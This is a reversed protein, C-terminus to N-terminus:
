DQQLVHRYVALVAEINEEGSGGTPQRLAPRALVAEIMEALAAPNSSPILRVGPPRMGNDSAIVPAGLHLAERVSISDGDYLTTRLFVDCRRITELTVPHPMDGFLLVHAAYPRNDIQRRLDSEISGSGAIILGVNPFRERVKGLAEIQLSLDYEPELLGVTLLVPKHSDLFVTLREPLLAPIEASVVYPHVLHIKAEPVGLRRFFDTIERNVGILADFSRFFKARFSSRNAARGEPSGPYGGSHFTLVTKKGPVLRALLGLIQLRLPLEGGVHLHLLDYPLRLLLRIVALASEPYYVEDAEPRRHRTLNM